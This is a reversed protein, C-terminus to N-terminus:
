IGTHNRTIFTSFVLCQERQTEYNKSSLSYQDYWSHALPLLFSSLTYEENWIYFIGSAKRYIRQSRRPVSSSFSSCFRLHAFRPVYERANKCNKSPFISRVLLAGASVCFIYTYIIRELHPFVLRAKWINVERRAKAEETRTRHQIATVQVSSDMFMNRVLPHLWSKNKFDEGAHRKRFDM